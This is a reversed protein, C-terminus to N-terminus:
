LRDLVDPKGGDNSRGESQAAGAAANSVVLSFEDVNDFSADVGGRGTFHQDFFGHEAPFFELHLHHAVAVVIADDNARDLVKVRHAHMSAIRDRNCGRERKGVLFVLDHAIGRDRHQALDPDLRAARIDLECDIRV